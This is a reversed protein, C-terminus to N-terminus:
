GGRLFASRAAFFLFVSGVVTTLHPDRTDCARRGLIFPYAAFVAYLSAALALAGKWAAPEPHYEHWAFTALWAPAVAAPAIWPWQRTWALVLILSLNVVHVLTVVALPPAGGSRSAAIVTM